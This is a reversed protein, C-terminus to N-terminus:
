ILTIQILNEQIHYNWGILFRIRRWGRLCSLCHPYPWRFRYLWDGMILDDMLESSREARKCQMQHFHLREISAPHNTWIGAEWLTVALINQHLMHLYAWSQIKTMTGSDPPCCSGPRMGQVDLGRQQRQDGVRQLRTFEFHVAICTQTYNAICFGHQRVRVTRFM